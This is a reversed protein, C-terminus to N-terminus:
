KAVAIAKFDLCIIVTLRRGGGWRNYRSFCGAHYEASKMRLAGQFIRSNWSARGIVILELLSDRLALWRRLPRRDLDLTLM